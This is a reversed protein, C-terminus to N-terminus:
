LIKSFHTGGRGRPSFGKYDYRRPPNRSDAVGFCSISLFDHIEAMEANEHFYTFDM